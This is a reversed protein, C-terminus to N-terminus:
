YHSLWHKAARRLSVYLANGIHQGRNKQVVANWYNLGCFLNFFFKNCWVAGDFM